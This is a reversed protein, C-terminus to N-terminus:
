KVSGGLFFDVITNLKASTGTFIMTIMTKFLESQDSKGQIIELMYWCLGGYGLLFIVSFLKQILSDDSYLKRASDRDAAELAFCEKEYTMKFMEFEKLLEKAEENKVAAKKIMGGVKAVAGVYNGGVVSLAVEGVEPLVSGVKGIFKGFDTDKFNKKDKSM